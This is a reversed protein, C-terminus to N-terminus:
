QIRIKGEGRVKARMGEECDEERDEIPTAVRIQSSPLNQDDIFASPISLISRHQSTTRQLITWIKAEPTKQLPKM